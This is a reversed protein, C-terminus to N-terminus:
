QETARIQEIAVIVFRVLHRYQQRSPAAAAYLRSAHQVVQVIAVLVTPGTTEVQRQHVM